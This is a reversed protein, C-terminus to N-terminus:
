PSVDPGREESPEQRRYSEMIEAVSRWFQASSSNGSLEFGEARSRIRAGGEKGLQEFLINAVEVASMLETM